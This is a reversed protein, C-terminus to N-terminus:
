AQASPWLKGELHRWLAAIEATAKGSPELENVARGDILAAHYAARARLVVPVVPLGYGELAARAEEVIAAEQGGRTPPAQNILILGPTKARKVTDVTGAVARLDLISPKVVLLALDACTAAELADAEASPRTDVVLLEVGADKAAKVVAALEGPETEVLEPTDAERSRWWDAASRQPDMDVLAVRGRGSAQAAVALHLAVTTKGAGGKRSLIALTKM